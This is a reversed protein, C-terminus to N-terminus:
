NKIREIRFTNKLKYHKEKLTLDTNLISYIEDWLELQTEPYTIKEDLFHAYEIYSVGTENAKQTGNYKKEITVREIPVSIGLEIDSDWSPHLHGLNGIYNVQSLDILKEKEKKDFPEFTKHNSEWEKLVVAYTPRVYWAGDIPKKEENAIVIIENNIKKIEFYKYSM